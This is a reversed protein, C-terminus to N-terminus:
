QDKVISKVKADLTCVHYLTGVQKAETRYERDEYKRVLRVM